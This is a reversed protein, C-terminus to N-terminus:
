KAGRLPVVNPRPEVIEQILAALRMLADAKERTYTHRDYTQQVTGGVVHGLVREAIDPLVGARSMLSRATRRLDHLTWPPMAPLKGDFRTKARALGRFPGDWRGALVYPNSTRPQARIIAVAAEPLRLKGPNGKERAETSIVWEGAPTVDDWRIRLIKSRRQATLLCLRVLAGFTGDTEATSWIVRLEDDGLIRARAHACPSQRRMGRAVPPTYDDDRLAHFNMISRTIALVYDAQRAGHTDEVHDLLAAIDSRRIGLFPRAAWAPFINMRLQRTIEPESRLGNRRVHRQLWLDAVEKFTLERPKAEDAPLGQRVRTLVNRANTRAENISMADARGITTWIQKGSPGVTVAAFSKSGTPQVRIYLGRLEPDPVAYRATRPKLAAVGKDSLTKHM